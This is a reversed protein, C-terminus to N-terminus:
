KKSDDILGQIWSKYDKECEVIYPNMQDKNIKLVGKLDLVSEYLIETRDSAFLRDILATNMDIYGIKEVQANNQLKEMQERGESGGPLFRFRRNTTFLLLIDAPLQKFYDSKKWHSESRQWRDFTKLDIPLLPKSDSVHWGCKVLTDLYFQRENWIFVARV